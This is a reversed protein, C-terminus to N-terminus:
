KLTFVEVWPARTFPTAPGHKWSLHLHHWPGHHADGTYGVWRFPPKPNTQTPEAWLALQGVKNWGVQTKNRPYFDCGLGLPHEGNPAHSGPWQSTTGCDGIQVDYTGMIWLLDPLIRNDIREGPFGPIQVYQGPTRVVKVGAVRSPVDPTTPAGEDEIPFSITSNGILSATKTKSTGEGKPLLFVLGAVALGLWM